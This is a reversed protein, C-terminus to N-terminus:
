VALESLESRDDQDQSQSPIGISMIKEIGIMELKKDIARKM